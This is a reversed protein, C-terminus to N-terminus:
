NRRKQSKTETVIWLDKLTVENTWPQWPIAKGGDFERQRIKNLFDSPAFTSQRLLAFDIMAYKVPLM